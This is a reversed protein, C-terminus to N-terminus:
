GLLLGGRGVSSAHLRRQQQRKAEDVASLLIDPLSFKRGRKHVDRDPMTAAAKSGGAPGLVEYAKAGDQPRHTQADDQEQTEPDCSSLLSPDM